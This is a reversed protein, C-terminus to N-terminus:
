SFITNIESSFHTDYTKRFYRTNQSRKANVVPRLQKIRKQYNAPQFASFLNIFFLIFIGLIRPIARVKRSAIKVSYIVAHWCMHVIIMLCKFLVRQVGFGVSDNTFHSHIAAIQKWPLCIDFHCKKKYKLSKSNDDFRDIPATNMSSLKM